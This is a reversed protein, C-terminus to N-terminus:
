QHNSARISCRGSFLWNQKGFATMVTVQTNVKNQLVNKVASFLQSIHTQITMVQYQELRGSIAALDIM